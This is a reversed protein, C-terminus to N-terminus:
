TASETAGFNLLIQKKAADGAYDNKDLASQAVTKVTRANDANYDAYIYVWENNVKVAIYGVASYSLAYNDSLINAVAGSFTKTTTDQEYYTNTDPDFEVNLYAPNIFGKTEKYADLKEMTLAGAGTAYATPTIVTGMKVNAAGMATVLADLAASDVKTAFRMGTSDATYRISAGEVMSLNSKDFVTITCSKRNTDIYGLDSSYTCNVFNLNAETQACGGVIGGVYRIGGEDKHTITTLNSVSNIVTFECGKSVQGVFGGIHRAKESTQDNSFEIAGNIQCNNIVTDAEIKGFLFGINSSGAQSCEINAYVTVNEVYANKGQAAIAGHNNSAFKFDGYDDSQGITLNKLTGSFVEGFLGNSSGIGFDQDSDPASTYQFKMARNNGDLVGTFTGGILPNTKIKETFVIDNGLRYNASLTYNENLDTNGIKSFDIRDKIIYWVSGDADTVSELLTNATNEAAFASFPIVLVAMCLVLIVSILKKM